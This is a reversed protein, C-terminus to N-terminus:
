EIAIVPQDFAAVRSLIIVWEAFQSVTVDTRQEVVAFPAVGPNNAARDCIHISITWCVQCLATLSWPRIGHPIVLMAPVLADERIPLRLGGDRAIFWGRERGVAHFEAVPENWHLIHVHRQEHLAVAPAIKLERIPFVSVCSPPSAGGFRTFISM